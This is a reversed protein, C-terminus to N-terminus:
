AGVGSRRSRLVRLFEARLKDADILAEEMQDAVSQCSGRATVRSSFKISDSAQRNWPLTAAHCLCTLSPRLLVHSILIAMITITIITPCQLAPSGLCGVVEDSKRYDSHSVYFQWKKGNGKRKKKNAFPEWKKDIYYPQTIKCDISVWGVGIVVTKATNTYSYIIDVIKYLGIM